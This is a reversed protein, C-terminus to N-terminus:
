NDEAGATIWDRIAQIEEDTLPTAGKPMQVGSGGASSQTGELKHILYSNDPDGPLVRKLDSETSDVGVLNSFSSGEELVQGGSASGSTHCGSRACTPTFIDTQISSLTPSLTEGTGGDTTEATGGCSLLLFFLPCLILGRFFAMSSRLLKIM